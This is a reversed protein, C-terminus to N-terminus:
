RVVIKTSRVGTRDQCRVVYVGKAWRSCDITGEAAIRTSMVKRGDITYVAVQSEFNSGTLLTFQNSAPNPYVVLQVDLAVAEDVSLRDIAGNVCGMANIKGHGWRISTSDNAVLVGTKEDNIATNAIIDKVQNVTLHSNAQLMLACIGAVQPGSMSTGSMSAWKYTRGGSPVVAQVTYDGNDYSSISSIVGVGPASIDPKARGDLTPGYSSFYAIEGAMWEGDKFRGSSHAAVAISNEACAPEGIGYYYDGNKYGPWSLSKFAMGVNSEHERVYNVNWVNLRTGEPATCFMHLNYNSVKDVKLIVHPRQNFPNASETIVNYRVTDGDVLIFGEQYTIDDSTAFFPGRFLDRSNNSIGFGAQFQQGPEGWYILMQGGDGPYYAAISGITDQTGDFNLGLHYEADGNNGASTVFVIGSDAYHNLAQSALSTGDITSFSYMGWSNSIVLRKGEEKSVKWMWAVQDIWSAEDLLWSGFLFQCHPAQGTYKNASNGENKTGRGGIIGACHSGHSNYQYINSTDSGAECLAEYGRFETGYDFGEPAPGSTKFQDWAAFVRKEQSSNFNPHKYDFGWDCIGVLVGDGKFAQPLGYGEQVSDTRTDVRAKDCLPKVKHAVSYQLVSAESELVQMKEIPLRLAVIDAVQSTVKIGQQELSARNFGKTVKALVRVMCVDGEQSVALQDAFPMDKAMLHKESRHQQMLARTEASGKKQAQATIMSLIFLAFILKKM